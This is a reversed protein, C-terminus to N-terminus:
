AAKTKAFFESRRERFVSNNWWRRLRRVNREARQVLDETIREEDCWRNVGRACAGDCWVYHMADLERNKKVLADQAIRLQRRLGKITEADSTM